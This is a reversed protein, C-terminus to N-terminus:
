CFQPPVRPCQLIFAVLEIIQVSQTGELESNKAEPKNDYFLSNSRTELVRSNGLLTRVMVHKPLLRTNESKSNMYKLILFRM